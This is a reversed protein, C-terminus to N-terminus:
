PSKRSTRFAAHLAASLGGLSLPKLLLDSFGQALVTERDIEGANGTVLIARLGPESERMRALMEIGTMAPMLHDTIVLDFEGPRASVRAIADAAGEVGEPQYGLQLLMQVGVRVLASEDDVVLLRYKQPM